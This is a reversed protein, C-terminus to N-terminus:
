RQNRLIAHSLQIFDEKTDSMLVQRHLATRDPVARYTAILNHMIGKYFTKNKEFSQDQAIVFDLEYSASQKRNEALYQNVQSMDVDPPPLADTIQSYLAVLRDSEGRQANALADKAQQAEPETDFEGAKTAAVAALETLSHPTNVLAQEELKNVALDQLSYPTYTTMKKNM